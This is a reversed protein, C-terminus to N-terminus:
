RCRSDSSGRVEPRTCRPGAAAPSDSANRQLTVPPIPRSKEGRVAHVQSSPHDSRVTDVYARATGGSDGHPPGTRFSRTGYGRDAPAESVDGSRRTAQRRTRAKQWCTRHGTSPANVSQGAAGLAPAESTMTSRPHPVHDKRAPASERHRSPCRWRRHRRPRRSVVVAALESPEPDFFRTGCEPDSQLPLADSLGAAAPGRHVRGQLPARRPM